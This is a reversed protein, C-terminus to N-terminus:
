KVVAKANLVDSAAPTWPAMVAVSLPYRLGADAVALPYMEVQQAVSTPETIKIRQAAKVDLAYAMLGSPFKAVVDYTKDGNVGFHQTSMNQSCFGSATQVERMGRFYKRDGMHGADYVAVKTSVADRNSVTGVCDVQLWDKDTSVNRYLSNAVAWNIAYLDLHGDNDYDAFAVGKTRVTELKVDPNQETINTFTGDGNNLYLQNAFKCDGEYLDVFGDNNIDGWAPGKGWHDPKDDMGAKHTTEVFHGTGDGKFLKNPGVYNSLYCDMNGDNDYDAFAAGLAWNKDQLGSEKSIDAFRIKGPTSVNLYMINPEGAPYRGRSVYVDDWGDNNVDVATSSWSWGRETVGATETVEVFKISGPTSENRFVRNKSNVGYNSLFLDLKGDHDFDCLLSGYTFDKVGAGCSATVDEFKGNGLGRYIKNSDIETRGGKAVHIDAIGDNDMDGMSSGMAFGTDYVGAAETADSFTGDKDNHYLVNRGGKNSVLIDAYGDKDYDNFIIGKGHGKDGVGAKETVDSFITLSKGASASSAYSVLGVVLGLMLFRGFAKM